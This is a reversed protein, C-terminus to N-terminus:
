LLDSLKTMKLVNAVAELTVEYSTQQVQLRIAAEERSGVEAESIRDEAHAMRKKLQASKDELQKQTNALSLQEAEVASTADAFAQTLDVNQNGNRIAAIAQSLASLAKGFITDGNSNLTISSGEGAMITKEQSNGQYSGASSFPATDSLSGSYLYGSGSKSNALDLVQEYINEMTKLYADSTAKDATAISSMIDQAQALMGGATELIASSTKIWTEAQALNSEYQGYRSLSARDSLIRGAASPDDSPKNIQKGSAVVNSADNLRGLQWETLHAMNNVMMSRTIRM